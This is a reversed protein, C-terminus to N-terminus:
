KKVFRANFSSGDNSYRISYVGSSLAEINLQISGGTLTINEKKLIMRGLHDFVILDNKSTRVTEPITINLQNTAPNPYVELIQNQDYNDDIGLGSARVGLSGGFIGYNSVFEAYSYNTESGLNWHTADATTANAYYKVASAPASSPNNAANQNSFAVVSLQSSQSLAPISGKIDLFDQNTFPFRISVPATPQAVGTALTVNWTRNAEKWSSQAYPATVTRGINTAYGATTTMKVEMGTADVNGISQGNAKIMLLLEDDAEAATNNDYYFYTWSGDNCQRNAIRTTNTVALTKLPQFSSLCPKTAIKSRILNGPLPGFGFAFNIGYSTLHCYSMITGGTPDPSLGSPCGGETPYCDDIAGGPWSCSQTHPSGINHGIEHTSAEVDWSYIPVQPITNLVENDAMSFPGYWVGSGQDFVPTQCLVDLWALGGLPPWGGENYGSVLHAIDGIFNSQTEEGFKILVEDSGGYTYGDPTSNVVTESMVANIGENNYLTSIVNFLSTLYNVCSTMNSNRVLFLEHDAQMSVRLKHCGGFTGKAASNNDADHNFKNMADTVGCKATRKNKIDAERFLLYNDKNIGPNAYNLVLNYNGSEPTSFVAAIDDNNFTFAALSNLQNTLIGRYFVGTEISVAKKKGDSGREYIKFGDDLINYSYLTFAHNGDRLPLSFSILPSAASKLTNLAAKNLKLYIVNNIEGDVTVDRQSSLTFLDYNTAEQTSLSQQVASALTNPSQAQM